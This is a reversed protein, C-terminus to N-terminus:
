TKMSFIVNEITGWEGVEVFDVSIIKATHSYKKPYQLTKTNKCVALTIHPLFLEYCFQYGHTRVYEEAVGSLKLGEKDTQQESDKSFFEKLDLSTEHVKQLMKRGRCAPDVYWFFFIKEYQAIQELVINETVIDAISELTEIITDQALNLFNSHYLTIHSPTKDLSILNNKFKNSLRKALDATQNDIRLVIGYAGSFTKNM